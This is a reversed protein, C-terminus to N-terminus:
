RAMVLMRILGEPDDSAFGQMAKGVVAGISREYDTAAMAVGPRSSAVLLDSPSIPGNEASVRVYVQGSLAIPLDNSGDERSGILM